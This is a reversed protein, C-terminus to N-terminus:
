YKQLHPKKVPIFHTGEHEFVIKLEDYYYKM